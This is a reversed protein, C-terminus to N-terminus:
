TFLRLLAFNDAAWYYQLIVLSVSIPWWSAAPQAAIPTYVTREKTGTRSSQFRIEYNPLYMKEGRVKQKVELPQPSLLSVGACQSDVAIFTLSKRSIPIKFDGIAQGTEQIVANPNLLGLQHMQTLVGQDVGVHYRRSCIVKQLFQKHASKNFRFPRASSLLPFKGSHALAIRSKRYEIVATYFRHFLVPDQCIMYSPMCPHILAQCLMDCGEQAGYGNFVRQNNKVELFIPTDDHLAMCTQRWSEVTKEYLDPELEPTPGHTHSWLCRWIQM